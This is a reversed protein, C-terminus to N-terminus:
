KIGIACEVDRECGIVAIFFQLLLIFHLSVRSVAAINNMTHLIINM